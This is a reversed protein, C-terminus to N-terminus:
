YREAMGSPLTRFCPHYFWSIPLIIWKEYHTLPQITSTSAFMETIYIPANAEYKELDLNYTVPDYLSIATIRDGTRNFLSNTNLVRDGFANPYDVHNRVSKDERFANLYFLLPIVLYLYMSKGFLHNISYRSLLHLNFKM